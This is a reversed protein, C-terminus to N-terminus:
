KEPFVSGNQVKNKPATKIFSWANEIQKRFDNQCHGSDILCLIAMIM